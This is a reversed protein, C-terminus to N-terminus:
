SQGKRTYTTVDEVVVRVTHGKAVAHQRARERVARPNLADCDDCQTIPESKTRTINVHSGVNM